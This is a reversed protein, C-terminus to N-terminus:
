VPVILFSKDSLNVVRDEQVTLECGSIMPGASGLVKKRFKLGIFVRKAVMARNSAVVVAKACAGPSVRRM